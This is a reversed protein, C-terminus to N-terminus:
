ELLILGDISDCGGNHQGIGLLPYAPPPNMLLIPPQSRFGFFIALKEASLNRAVDAPGNCIEM